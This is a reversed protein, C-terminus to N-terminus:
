VVSVPHAVPMVRITYSPPPMFHAQCGAGEGVETVESVEGSDHGSSVNSKNEKNLFTKRCSLNAEYKNWLQPHDQVESGEAEM